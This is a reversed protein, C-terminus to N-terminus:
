GPGLPKTMRVLPVRVGSPTLQEFPEEGGYGCARYLPLGGMTATLEARAFGAQAAAAECLALVMRGIGRRAFAPDTYMARVRAADRAPDLLRADRGPSHDGGFPTARRSWGGAGVIAGEREVVFYSGDDILQTDLGMISGSAAVQEPTLVPKLLEAIAGDMLRTLAPIDDRTALRHSFGTM